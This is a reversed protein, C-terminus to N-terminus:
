FKFPHRYAKSSAGLIQKMNAEYNILRNFNQKSEFKINSETNIQNEKSNM